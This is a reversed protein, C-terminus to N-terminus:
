LQGMINVAHLSKTENFYTLKFGRYNRLVTLDNSNHEMSIFLTIM